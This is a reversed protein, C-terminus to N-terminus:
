HWSSRPIPFFDRCNSCRWLRYAIRIMDKPMGPSGEPWEEALKVGIDVIMQDHANKAQAMVEGSLLAQRTYDRLRNGMNKFSVSSDACRRAGCHLCVDPKELLPRTVPGYHGIAVESGAETLNATESGAPNSVFHPRIHNGFAPPLGGQRRVADVGYELASRFPQLELPLLDDDDNTDKTEATSASAAPPNETTQNIGKAADLLAFLALTVAEITSVKHKHISQKRNLFRSPGTIYELDICARPIDDPLSRNMASSQSWTSDVVCLHLPKPGEVANLLMDKYHSIPLSDSSPYIILSPQSRLTSILATEDATNGFIYTSCRESGLGVQLLKGTNSSRGWEKFHMLVDFNIRSLLSTSEKSTIPQFIKRVPECVCFAKFIFCQLCRGEAEFVARRRAISISSQQDLNSIVQKGIDEEVDSSDTGVGGKTTLAADTSDRKRSTMLRQTDGFPYFVFLHHNPVLRRAGLISRSM